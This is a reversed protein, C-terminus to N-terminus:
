HLLGPKASLNSALRGLICRAKASSPKTAGRFFNHSFLGHWVISERAYGGRPVIRRAGAREDRMPACRLFVLLPQFVCDCIRNYFLIAIWHNEDVCPVFPRLAVVQLRALFPSSAIELSCFLRQFKQLFSHWFNADNNRIIDM